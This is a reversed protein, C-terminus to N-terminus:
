REERDIKEKHGNLERVEDPNYARALILDLAKALRRNLKAQRSHYMELESVTPNM